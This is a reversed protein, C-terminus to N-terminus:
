ARYLAANFGTRSPAVARSKRLLPVFLLLLVLVVAIAAAAVFELM